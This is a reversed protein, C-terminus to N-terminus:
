KKVLRSKIRRRIEASGVVGSLAPLLGFLVNGEPVAKPTYDYTVRSNAYAELLVLSDMNNPTQYASTGNAVVNVDVTGSGILVSLYSSPVPTVYQGISLLDASPVILVQGPALNLLNEYEYGLSLFGYGGYSFTMDGTQTISFEQVNADSNALEIAGQLGGNFEISAGTLTGISPDFKQIQLVDTWNTTKIVITDTYTVSAAWTLSSLALLLVATSITRLLKM